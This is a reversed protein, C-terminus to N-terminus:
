RRPGVRHSLMIDVRGARSWGEQGRDQQIHVRHIRATSGLATHVAATLVAMTEADIGPAETDRPRARDESEARQALFGVAHLLGTLVAMVLMVAAFASGAISLTQMM